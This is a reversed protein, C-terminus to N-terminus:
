NKGFYNDYIYGAAIYKETLEMKYIELLELYKQKFCNKCLWEIGQKSIICKGDVVYRYNKNNSKIMYIIAKEITRSKRDFFDELEYIYMDNNFLNTSAVSLLKEYLKIRMLFFEIDADIQSKENQFYVYRLWYYGEILIYHRKSRVRQSKWRCTPHKKEMIYIAKRLDKHTIEAGSKTKIDQIKFKELIRDYSLFITELEKINDSIM